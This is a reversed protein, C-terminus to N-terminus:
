AVPEPFHHRLSVTAAHIRQALELLVAQWLDDPVECAFGTRDLTVRVLRDSGRPIHTRSASWQRLVRAATESAVTASAIDPFDTFAIRGPVIWGVTHPGDVLTWGTPDRRDLRLHTLMM